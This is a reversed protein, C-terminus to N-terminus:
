KSLRSTCQTAEEVVELFQARFAEEREAWPVPVIPAQSAIAALRAAEYVFIARRETLKDMYPTAEERIMAVLLDLEAETRHRM